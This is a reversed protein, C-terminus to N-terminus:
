AARPASTRTSVHVSPSSPSTMPECPRLQRDVSGVLQTAVPMPSNVEASLFQADVPRPIQTPGAM